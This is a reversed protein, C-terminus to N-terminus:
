AKKRWTLGGTHHDMFEKWNMIRVRPKIKELADQWARLVPNRYCKFSNNANFLSGVCVHTSAILKEDSMEPEKKLLQNVHYHCGLGAEGHAQQLIGEPTWPGLWGPTANERFPCEKCPQKRRFIM